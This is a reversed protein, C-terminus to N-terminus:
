TKGAFNTCTLIFQDVLSGSGQETAAMSPLCTTTNRTYDHIYHKDCTVWVFDM